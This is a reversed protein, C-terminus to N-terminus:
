WLDPNDFTQICVPRSKLVPLVHGSLTQGLWGEPMSLPWPAPIVAESMVQFGLKTYYAPDGYTVALTAGRDKLELLGFRILSQGIGKGQFATSVAVPSLLYANTPEDFRIRSFFIAGTLIRGDDAAVCIVEQDDIQMALGAALNGILRGEHEGESFSFVSTFLNTVDEKCTRDLIKFIM